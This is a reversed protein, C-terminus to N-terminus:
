AAQRGRHRRIAVTALGAVAFLGLVMSGPEPVVTLSGNVMQLNTPIPEDFEDLGNFLDSAGNPHATLSFSYTGPAIGVTSLTLTAFIGDTNQPTGGGATLFSATTRRGTGTTTTGDAVGGIGASGGVWIAAALNAGPIAGDTDNFVHTVVPGGAAILLRMNGDTYFEGNAKLNVNIKQGATNALLPHVGATIVIAAQAIAPVSLLVALFLLIRRQM